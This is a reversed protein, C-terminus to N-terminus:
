WPMDQNNTTMSGDEDDAKETAIGSLSVLDIGLMDYDFCYASTIKSDSGNVFRTGVVSGLYYKRGNFYHKLNDMSMSEGKSNRKKYNEQYVKHINNLRLYLVKKPVEFLITESNNDGVRVKLESKTIVKFDWDIKILRGEAIYAMTNWFESLKDSSRIFNCWQLGKQLCYDYLKNLDLVDDSLNLCHKVSLGMSYIHAYNQIIRQNYNDNKGIAIRWTKLTEYFVSKYDTKIEDRHAVIDCILSNIGADEIDKLNQYALNDEASRNENTTFGEIISRTVNSNDDATNLYQGTLLLGSLVKQTEVKNRTTMSGRQRSEGDFIGKIAQFRESSTVDGDFENLWALGGTFKGMYNFFAFDTGSNLQFASRKHYFFSSISEAWKSKGSSKEGFGYLHPFNNDISFVVDRYVCLWAYICGIIGAMGYVREMKKVWVDMTITSQKFELVRDNEFPDEGTLLLEKYAASSAPLLYSDRHGKLTVIGWDDVIQTGINPIYIRDIYAYFGWSQWGLEKLEVCRKFQELLESAIRKYATSAAYIIYNGEAVLFASMVDPSIMAKAEVDMVSKRKGNDVEIIYRSDKGKYVFFIPTVIYNTAQSARKFQTDYNYYGWHTIEGEKVKKVTCYGKKKLEDADMYKPLAGYPDGGNVDIKLGDDDYGIQIQKRKEINKYEASVNAVAKKIESEDLWYKNKRANEYNIEAERVLEQAEQVDDTKAKSAIKNVEILKKECNKLLEKENKSEDAMWNAIMGIYADRGITNTINLLLKAINESCAILGAPSTSDQMYQATCWLIADTKQPLIIM